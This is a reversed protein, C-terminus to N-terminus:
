NLLSVIERIDEPANEMLYDLCAKKYRPLIHTRLQINNWNIKSETEQLQKIVIVIRRCRFQTYDEEYKEIERKCLPLHNIRKYPINIAKLIGSKTIRKIENHSGTQFKNIANKVLILTENDENDKDLIKPKIKVNRNIKYVYKCHKPAQLLEEIKIGLFFAIQCIALADNRTGSLVKTIMYDETIGTDLIDTGKYFEEMESYIAVSSPLGGLLKESKSKSKQNKIILKRKLFEGFKSCDDILPLDMLSTIYKAFEMEMTPKYIMKEGQLIDQVTRPAIRLDKSIQIDTEILKCGHLCCVNIGFIQHKRYWIAEGFSEIDNQACVPCYRLFRKEGRIRPRSLLNHFNGEMEMLAQFANEQKEKCLFRAYYPFMTHKLIVDPLSMNREIARIVEPKFHNIFEIDVRKQKDIFLIEKVNEFSIFGSQSYFRAVVSYLLEDKHIYPFFGIEM